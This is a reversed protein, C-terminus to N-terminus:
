LGIHNVYEADYEYIQLCDSCKEVQESNCYGYLRAAQKELNDSISDQIKDKQCGSSVDDGLITKYNEWKVHFHSKVLSEEM